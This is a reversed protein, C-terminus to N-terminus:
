ILQKKMRPTGCPDSAPGRHKQKIALELGNIPRTRIVPPTVKLNGRDIYMLKSLM